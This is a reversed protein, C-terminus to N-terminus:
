DKVRFPGFEIRNPVVPLFCNSSLSLRNQFRINPVFNSPQVESFCKKRLSNRKKNNIQPDQNQSQKKAHMKNVFNVRFFHM